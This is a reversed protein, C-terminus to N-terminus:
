RADEGECSRDCDGENRECEARARTETTECREFCSEAAEDSRLGICRDNCRDLDREVRDNCRTASRECADICEDLDFEEGRRDDRGLPPEGDRPRRGDPDSRVRPSDLCRRMNALRAEWGPRGDPTAFPPLVSRYIRMGASIAEGDGRAELRKVAWCDASLESDHSILPLAAPPSSFAALPHRLRHHGYEHARTFRFEPSDLGGLRRIWTGDYIIVPGYMPDITALGAFGQGTGPIMMEPVSLGGDVPPPLGSLLRAMAPAPLLVIVLLLASRRGM